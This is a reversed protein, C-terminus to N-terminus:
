SPSPCVGGGFMCVCVCVCVSELDPLSVCGQPYVHVPAGQLQDYDGTCYKQLLLPLSLPSLTAVGAYMALYVVHM